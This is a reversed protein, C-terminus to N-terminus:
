RSAANVSGQGPSQAESQGNPVVHAAHFLAQFFM